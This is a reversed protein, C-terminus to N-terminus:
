ILFSFFINTTSCYFPFARLVQESDRERPRIEAKKIKKCNQNNCFFSIVPSIACNWACELQHLYNFPNRYPFFLCIYLLIKYIASSSIQFKIDIYCVRLNPVQMMRNGNLLPTSKHM